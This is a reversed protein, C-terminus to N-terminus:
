NVPSDSFKFDVTTLLHDSLKSDTIDLQLQELEKQNLLESDLIFGNKPMLTKTSYVVYDLKGPSFSANLGGRWTVISEGVLNPVLWDKLGHIKKNTILDLPTRSGVLNFDGVIVIGPKAPLLNNEAYEGKSIQEITELIANAQQIRYRDEKSGIYGMASLHANIVILCKGKLEVSAVAYRTDSSPLAKLPHKSAIVNGRVKHVYWQGADELPLLRKMIKDLGTSEWEEQFCYVDGRVSNLLRSMADARNPDSLGERYTNLSVIRVDTERHRRYTRREPKEPPKSFTYLVPSVLQDSGGFQIYVSDGLNIGFKSLNIQIEFEDQAYTPGVVYELHSWPIREKIVDNLYVRRGRTDLILQQSNPLDLVILLTGESEPGNQLNLVSGTDFRLYLTTGRSSVYVQTVDFSGKADGQPDCAIIGVDKWDEFEGDIRMGSAPLGTILILTFAIIVTYFYTKRYCATKM